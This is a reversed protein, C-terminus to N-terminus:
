YLFERGMDAARRILYWGQNSPRATRARARGWWCIITTECAAQREVMPCCRCRCIPYTVWVINSSTMHFYKRLYPKKVVLFTFAELHEHKAPACIFLLVRFSHLLSLHSSQTVAIFTFGHVTQGQLPNLTVSSFRSPLDLRLHFVLNPGLLVQPYIHSKLVNYHFGSFWLGM